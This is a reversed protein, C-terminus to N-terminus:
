RARTEGGGGGGGGGGSHLQEDLAAGDSGAESGGDPLLESDSSGFDVVYEDFDHMAVVCCGRGHTAASLPRPHLLLAAAARCCRLM